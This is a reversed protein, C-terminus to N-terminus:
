GTVITAIVLVILGVVIVLGGLNITARWMEFGSRERSEGPM